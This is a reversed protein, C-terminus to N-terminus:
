HKQSYKAWGEADSHSGVEKIRLGETSIDIVEDYKASFGRYNIKIKKDGIDLVLAERWKKDQKDWVDLRNNREFEM